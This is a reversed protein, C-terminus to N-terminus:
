QGLMLLEFSFNTTTVGFFLSLLTLNVLGTVDKPFVFVFVAEEDFRTELLGINDEVPTFGDALALPYCGSLDEPFVELFDQVVPVDELRKEESKATVHALFVHCGKLLYKQIKTCSIINLRSGHEHNSGDGRVILTENGFPIHVIKEDCVIVAYYKSLWDMGIIDNNFPHNLFNLTCGRILTIVWIIRRDALEVDYGHNRAIIRSIAKLEVSLALSFEKIQGKPERSTTPLLLSAEVTGTRIALGRTTPESLLVSDTMTITANLACLNLDETRNRKWLGQLIPGHWM